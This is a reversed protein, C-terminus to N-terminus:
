FAERLIAQAEEETLTPENAARREVQYTGDSMGDLLGSIKDLAERKSDANLEGASNFLKNASLRRSGDTGKPGIDQPDFEQGTKKDYTKVRSAMNAAKLYPNGM